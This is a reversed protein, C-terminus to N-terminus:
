VNGWKVPHCMVCPHEVLACDEGHSHRWEFKPDTSLPNRCGEYVCQYSKNSVEFPLVFKM